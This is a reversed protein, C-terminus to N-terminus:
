IKGKVLHCNTNLGLFFLCHLGFYFLSTFVIDTTSTSLIGCSMWPWSFFLFNRMGKQLHQGNEVTCFFSESFFIQKHMFCLFKRNRTWLHLNFWSIEWSDAEWKTAERQQSLSMLFWYICAVRSTQLFM